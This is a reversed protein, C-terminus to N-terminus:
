FNIDDEPDPAAFRQQAQNAQRNMQQAVPPAPAKSPEKPEVKLSLMRKGDNSTRLWGSLWYDVGDVNISGKRDPRNDNGGKDNKFLVGTNTNDYQSM